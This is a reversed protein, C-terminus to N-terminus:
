DDHEKEVVVADGCASCKGGASREHKLNIIANAGKMAGVAKLGEIAEEPRRFGDVYVAEVQRVLAYGAINQTSSTAIIKAAEQRRKQAFEADPGAYKQLRPHVAPKRRAAKIKVLIWVVALVATAAVLLVYANMDNLM